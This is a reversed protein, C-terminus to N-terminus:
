SDTIGQGNSVFAGGPLIRHVRLQVGQLLGELVKLMLCTAQTYDRAESRPATQYRVQMPHLPDRTRIEANRGIKELVQLRTGLRM